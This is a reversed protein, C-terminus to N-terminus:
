SGASSRSPTREADGGRAAMAPRRPSRRRPYPRAAALLPAGRAARLRHVPAISCEGTYPSILSEQNLDYFEQRPRAVANPELIPNPWPPVPFTQFRLESPTTVGSCYRSACPIRVTVTRPGQTVPCAPVLVDQGMVVVGRRKLGAGGAGQAALSRTGPSLDIRWGQDQPRQRDRFRM